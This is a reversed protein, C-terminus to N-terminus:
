AFSEGGAHVSSRSARYFTATCDNPTVFAVGIVLRVRFEAVLASGRQQLALRTGSAVLHVIGVGAEAIVAPVRKLSPNHSEIM